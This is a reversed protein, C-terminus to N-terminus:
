WKQFYEASAPAASQSKSLYELTELAVFDNGAGSLHVGDQPRVLSPKRPHAKMKDYIDMYEVGQESAALKKLVAALDQACENRLIYLPSAIKYNKM